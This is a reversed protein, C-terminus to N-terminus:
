TTKGHGFVFCKLIGACYELHELRPDLITTNYTVGTWKAVITDTAENDGGTEIVNTIIPFARANQVFLAILAMVFALLIGATKSPHTKM